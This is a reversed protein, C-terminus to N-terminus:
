DRRRGTFGPWVDANPEWETAHSVMLYNEHGSGEQLAASAAVRHHGEALTPKTIFQGGPRGYPQMVQIPSVAGHQKMSDYVGAGHPGDGPHENPGPGAVRSEREKARWDDHLEFSRMSGGKIQDKIEQGTMLMRLQGPHINDAASM